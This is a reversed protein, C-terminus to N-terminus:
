SYNSIFSDAEPLFVSAHQLSWEGSSWNVNKWGCELGRGEPEWSGVPKLRLSSSRVSIQPTEPALEMFCYSAAVSGSFDNCM